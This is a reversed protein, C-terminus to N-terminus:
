PLCMLKPNVTLPEAFSLEAPAREQRNYAMMLSPLYVAIIPRGQAPATSDLVCKAICQRKIPDDTTCYSWLEVIWVYKPYDLRLLAGHIAHLLEPQPANAIENHLDAQFEISGLLYTRYEICNAGTATLLRKVEPIIKELKTKDVERLRLLQHEMESPFHNIFSRVKVEADTAALTAEQPTIVIISTLDSFALSQSADKSTPLKLYPGANDNNIYFFPIREIAASSRKERDHGHGIGVVAHDETNFIVPLRSEIHKYAIDALKMTQLLAENQDESIGTISNVASDSFLPNLYTCFQKDMCRKQYYTASLGMGHLADLMQIPTLGKESAPYQRGLVLRSQALASIEGPCFQRSNFQKSMYRAVIWLASQACAAVQTDQQIFPMGRVSFQQGLIHTTFNATCNIYEWEPLPRLVTRGIRNFETPRLVLFGLYEKQALLWCELSCGQPPESAFFHCRETRSTLVKFSRSYFTSFEDLYDLDIYGQELVVTKCQLAELQNLIAVLPPSPNPKGQIKNSLSSRDFREVTYNKWM